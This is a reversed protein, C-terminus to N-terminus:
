EIIILDELLVSQIPRFTYKWEVPSIDAKAKYTQKTGDKFVQEWEPYIGVVEFVTEPNEGPLPTHFIAKQGIKNPTM